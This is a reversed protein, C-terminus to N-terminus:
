MRRTPITTDEATTDEKAEPATVGGEKKRKEQRYHGTLQTTSPTDSSASRATGLEDRDGAGYTPHTESFKKLQEECAKVVRQLRDVRQTYPGVCDTLGRLAGSNKPDSMAERLSVQQALADRLVAQAASLHTQLQDHTRADLVDMEAIYARMLAVSADRASQALTQPLAEPAESVLSVDEFADEASKLDDTLRAIATETSAVAQNAIAIDDEDVINCSPDSFMTAKARATEELEPMKGKLLALQMKLQEVRKLRELAEAVKPVMASEDPSLTPLPRLAIDTRVAMTSEEFKIPGLQTMLQRSIEDLQTEDLKGTRKLIEVVILPAGLAPNRTVVSGSESRLADGLLMKMLGTLCTDKGGDCMVNYKLKGGIDPNIARAIAEAALTTFEKPLVIFQVPLEGARGGWTYKSAHDKAEKSTKESLGEKTHSIGKDKLVLVTHGTGVRTGVNGRDGGHPHTFRKIDKLVEDPNPAQLEDKEEAAIFPATTIFLAQDPHKEQIEDITKRFSRKSSAPQEYIDKDNKRGAVEDGPLRYTILPDIGEGVYITRVKLAASSYGRGRTALADVIAPIVGKARGIM